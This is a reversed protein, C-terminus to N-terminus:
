FSKLKARLAAGDIKAKESEENISDQAKNYLSSWIQARGDEDLYPAAHILSGYLYADPFQELLWNTTVADTLQPIKAFYTLEAEYSANPTPWVEIEGGTIAYYQPRGPTDDGSERYEMIGAQSTKKLWSTGDTTILFRIAEIYDAPLATYQTVLNARSRREQRWHRVNRQIDAEALSIFTPIVSALDDRNLWDALASKLEAYTTISM